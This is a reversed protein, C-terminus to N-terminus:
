DRRLAFVMCPSQAQDFDGYEYDGCLSDVIFGAGRAMDEFVHREILAFRIPTSVLTAPECRTRHEEITQVGSVIGAKADYTLDARLIIEGQGSPARHRAVTAMGSHISQLRVTPNHLTCIFVGGPTLAAHVSRLAAEQDARTLLESFSHFPLIALSFREVFGLNRADRELV